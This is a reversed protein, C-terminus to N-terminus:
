ERSNKPEKPAEDNQINEDTNPLDNEKEFEFGYLTM